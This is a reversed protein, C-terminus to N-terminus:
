ANVCRDLCIAHTFLVVAGGPEGRLQAGVEMAALRLRAGPRGRRRRAFRVPGVTLGVTVIGSTTGCSAVSGFAGLGIVRDGRMEIRAM